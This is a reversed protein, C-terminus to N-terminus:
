LQGIIKKNLNLPEQFNSLTFYEYPYALKRKFLEDTFGNENM